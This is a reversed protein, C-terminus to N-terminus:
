RARVRLFYRHREAEGGRGDREFLEVIYDDPVIRGAEIELRALVPPAGGAPMTEGRWVEEGSVTRVIAHGRAIRAEGADGELQLIVIDTGPPITLTAPSGAGRVGIPSISLAVVSRAPLGPAPSAPPTVPPATTGPVTGSAADRTASAPPTTTRSTFIWIGAAAALVLSAAAAAQALRPSSVAVWSWWRLAIRPGPSPAAVTGLRRAVALRIRHHPSALYRSEFLHREDGSLRGSLYDDVLDEEAAAVRDLAEAREFYEREIVTCEDESAAGLLYQRLRAHDRTM